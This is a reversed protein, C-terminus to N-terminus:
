RPRTAMACEDLRLQDFRLDLKGCPLGRRFGDDEGRLDEESPCYKVPRFEM